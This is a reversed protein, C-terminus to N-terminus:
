RICTGLRPDPRSIFNAIFPDSIPLSYSVSIWPVIRRSLDFSRIYFQFLDNYLLGFVEKFGSLADVLFIALSVLGRELVRALLDM